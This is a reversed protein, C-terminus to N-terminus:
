STQFGAPVKATVPASVFKKGTIVQIRRHLIEIEIPSHGLSEGDVELHIPPESDIHIKKGRFGSVKPHELITGDYLKKLSRVIEMKKMRRVVTLDFFGDDALAHPTQMMGGGTFKGIGISITFVDDILVADDIRIRTHTHSYSALSTLLNKFYLMVGSKGNQKQRNCKRVVVADFGMGAINLFYRSKEQTDQYYRVLGADQYFTKGQRITKVADAYESPVCFMRGWDNGTGVSIMGLVFDQTPIHHKGFIGNVVENMTGDGGVVIFHRSGRGIAECTLEIAHGPGETFVSQFFIENERLLASIKEWDKRGKQKGANPNVIVEWPINNTQIHM